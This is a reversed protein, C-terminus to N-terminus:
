IKSVVMRRGPPTVFADSLSTEVSSIDRSCGGANNTNVSCMSPHAGILSSSYTSRLLYLWLCAVALVSMLIEFAEM